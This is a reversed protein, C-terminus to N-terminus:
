SRESARATSINKSCAPKRTTPWSASRAARKCYAISHASRWSSPPTMPMPRLRLFDGPSVNWPIPEGCIAAYLAIMRGELERMQDLVEASMAENLDILEPDTLGLARRQRRTSPQSLHSLLFVSYGLRDCEEAFYREINERQCGAAPCRRLGNHQAFREPFDGAIGVYLPDRTDPNWFVYVGGTAWASRSEPGLLRELAERVNQAHERRYVDLLVTGWM